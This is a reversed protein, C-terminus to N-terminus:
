TIRHIVQPMNKYKHVNFYYLDNYEDRTRNFYWESLCQLTLPMYNWEFKNAFLKISETLQPLDGPGYVCVSRLWKGHCSNANVNKWLKHRSIFPKHDIKNGAFSGPVKLHPNHNLSTFLTEDPNRTDKVWNTFDQARKDNLLFDIYGRSATIHISGKSVTINHPPPKKKQRPRFDIFVFKTRFEYEKKRTGAIDNAGKFAQLIRVIQLNTKLPYEQGTLNIFYKWDKYKKFLDQMCVLEAETESFKGWEVDVLRSAIMTNPLCRVIARMDSIVLPNSSRDIHICYYNHPRYIARLLNEVQVAEKYLVVSFALPFEREEKTVNEWGIYGGRLRFATCNKALSSAYAGDQLIKRPHLASYEEAEIEAGPKQKILANCDFQDDPGVYIRQKRILWSWPLLRTDRSLLDFNSLVSSTM